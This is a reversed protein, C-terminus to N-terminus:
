VIIKQILKGIEDSLLGGLFMGYLTSRWWVSIFGCTGSACGIFKWYLYGVLGGILSSVVIYVM